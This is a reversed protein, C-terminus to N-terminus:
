MRVNHCERISMTRPESKMIPGHRKYFSFYSLPMKKNVEDHSCINMHDSELIQISCVYSHLM